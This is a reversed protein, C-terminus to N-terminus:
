VFSMFGSQSRKEREGERWWRVTGRRLGVAKERAYM